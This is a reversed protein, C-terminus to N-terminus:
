AGPRIDATWAQDGWTVTISSAGDKYPALGILMREMPEAPKVAKLPIRVVEKAKIEPTYDLRPWLANAVDAPAAKFIEKLPVGPDTNVIIAREGSEPAYLYLTYKGAPVKQGGIMVPVETSLTTAQDVGLRWVRTAPLQGLLETVTRGKLAPRGYEVTVKKGNMLATVTERPARDAQGWALTGVALVAVTAAFRVNM